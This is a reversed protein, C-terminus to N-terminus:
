ESTDARTIRELLGGRRAPAQGSPSAAADAPGTQAPADSAAPVAHQPVHQSPSAASAAAGGGGLARLFGSARAIDQPDVPPTVAPRARTTGPPGRRDAPAGARPEAIRDALTRRPEPPAEAARPARSGATTQYTGSGLRRMEEMMHATQRAARENVAAIESRLRQILQTQDDTQSQLSALRAKMAMKSEAIGRGDKDAEEYVTMAARLRAIESAQEETMSRLSAIESELRTRMDNGAEASNQVSRLASEAEMLDSRLRAIEEEARPVVVYDSSSLRRDAATSGDGAGTQVAGVAGGTRSMLGQLRAIMSAQERTRARLAELESRLAVEGDFRSDGLGDRNRAARTALAANLRMIEDRTQANIQTTEDLARAQKEATESLRTIERDRQTLLRRAEALRQEVRPLRDMITQELVRRANEHEELSTGMRAVEGELASIAADRRNIEVRQRASTLTVQELNRNLDHIALSYEARIRDKDARIEAETMPMARKLRETTLRVTRHYYAPVILLGALCAALFGLSILMVSQISIM